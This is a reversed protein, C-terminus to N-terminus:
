FDFVGHFDVVKALSCATCQLLFLAGQAQVFPASKKNCYLAVARLSSSSQWVVLTTAFFQVAQREKADIQAQVIIPESKKYYLAVAYHVFNVDM